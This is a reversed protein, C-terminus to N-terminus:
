LQKKLIDIITQIQAKNKFTFSAKNIGILPEFITITISKKTISITEEIEHIDTISSVRKIVKVTTIQKLM